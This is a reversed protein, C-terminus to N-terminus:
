RRRHDTSTSHVKEWVVGFQTEEESDSDKEETEPQLQTKRTGAARREIAALKKEMTKGWASNDKGHRTTQLQKDKEKEVVTVCRPTKFPPIKGPM